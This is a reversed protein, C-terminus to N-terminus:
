SRRPLRVVTVRGSPLWARAAYSWALRGTRIMPGAPCVQTCSNSSRPSRVETVPGSSAVVTVCAAAAAILGARPQGGLRRLLEAVLVCSDLGGSVLVAVDGSLEDGVASLHGGSM